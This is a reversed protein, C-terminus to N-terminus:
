NIRILGNIKRIEGSGGIDSWFNYFQMQTDSIKRFYVVETGKNSPHDGNGTEGCIFNQMGWLKLSEVSFIFTSHDENPDGYWIELFLFNNM